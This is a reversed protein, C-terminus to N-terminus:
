LQGVDVGVTVGVTDGVICGLHIQYGASLLQRDPGVRLVVRPLLRPSQVFSQKTDATLHSEMAYVIDVCVHSGDIPLQRDPLVMLM